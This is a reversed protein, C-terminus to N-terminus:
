RGHTLVQAKNLRAAALLLRQAEEPTLSRTQADSALIAVVTAEHATLELLERASFGSRIPPLYHDLPKDFLDSFSLGIAALVDDTECGGFCHLLLRGNEVERISLSPSRDDHAPCRSIWRRSGTQKLGAVRDLVKTATTMRLECSRRVNPTSIVDVNLIPAVAHDSFGQSSLQLAAAEVNQPKMPVNSEARERCDRRAYKQRTSFM